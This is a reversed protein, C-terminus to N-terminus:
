LPAILEIGLALSIEDISQQSLKSHDFNLNQPPLDEKQNWVKPGYAKLMAQSRKLFIADKANLFQTEASYVRVSAAIDHAEDFEPYAILWNYYTKESIGIAGCFGLASYGRSAMDILDDCFSPSYKTNARIRTVIPRSGSQKRPKKLEVTIAQKELM